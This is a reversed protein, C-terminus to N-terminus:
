FIKFATDFASASYGKSIWAAKATKYDEPSIYGDAGTRSKLQSYMDTQAVSQTPPKTNTPPLPSPATGAKAGAVTEGAVPIGKSNYFKGDASVYVTECNGMVVPTMGALQQQTTM